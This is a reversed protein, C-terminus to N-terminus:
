DTAAARNRPEFARFSGYRFTEVYRAGIWEDLFKVQSSIASANPESVGDIRDDVVILVPPTREFEAVMEQQIALSTQVGPHLDHWRTAAHRAALFYLAVDNLFIRDHRSAGVYIPDEPKSHSDVFAITAALDADVHFCGLRQNSSLTCPSTTGGQAMTVRTTLRRMVSDRSKMHPALKASIAICLSALLLRVAFHRPKAIAVAGFIACTVLAPSMHGLSVRVLGKLIMCALLLM